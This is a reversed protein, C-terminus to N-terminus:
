KIFALICLQPPNLHFLRWQEDECQMCMADHENFLKTSENREGWNSGHGPANIFKFATWYRPQKMTTTTPKYQKKCCCDTEWSETLLKTKSWVVSAQHSETVISAITLAVPLLWTSLVMCSGELSGCQPKVDWFYMFYTSNKASLYMSFLIIPRQALISLNMSLYSYKM